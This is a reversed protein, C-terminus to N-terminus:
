KKNRGGGKKREWLGERQGEYKQRWIGGEWALSGGRGGEAASGGVEETAEVERGVQRWDGQAPPPTIPLLTFAGTSIKLGCGLSAQCSM